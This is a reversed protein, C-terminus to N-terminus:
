LYSSDMSLQSHNKFNCSTYQVYQMLKIFHFHLINALCQLKQFMLYYRTNNVSEPKWFCCVIALINYIINTWYIKQMITGTTSKRICSFISPTTAIILRKTCMHDDSFNILIVPLGGLENPSFIERGGHTSTCYTIILEFSM